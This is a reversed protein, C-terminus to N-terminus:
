DRGWLILACVRGGSEWFFVSLNERDKQLKKCQLLVIEATTKSDTDGRGGQGGDSDSDSGDSAHVCVNAMIVAILPVTTSPTNVLASPLLPKAADAGTSMSHSDRPVTTTMVRVPFDYQKETAIADVFASFM